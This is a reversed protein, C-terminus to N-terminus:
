TRLRFSRTPFQRDTGLGLMCQEFGSARVLVGVVKLCPIGRAPISPVM